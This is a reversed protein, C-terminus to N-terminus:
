PSRLAVTVAECAELLRESLKRENGAFRQAPVPISIAAVRGAADAITAGVASIGVTHEERDYAVGSRRVDALEELLAARDTITSSTLRELRRPLLDMIQEDPLAALLAKGNATCYAPFLAGVASVARLRRPADIHDVFLVRDHRLVALDVTEDIERSLEVLYPHAALALGQESVLALGALAPGLRYGGNSSASAVFGEAELAVVLRHVTSRPLDVRAAIQSLSLGDRQRKLADLIQAVRHVVQVGDGRRERAVPM